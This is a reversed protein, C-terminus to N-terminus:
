REQLILVGNDTRMNTRSLFSNGLLSHQMADNLGIAAKVNYLTLEGVTVKHLTVLRVEKVGNATSFYSAQGKTYDIGLRKATSLNFTILTAGTDVMFDVHHGNVVGTVWHHGHRQSVIRVTKPRAQQYSGGVQRSLGVRQRQGNIELLADRSTAKILTIGQQTKGEKLMVRQGDVMLLAAGKFLGKVTINEAALGAMSFAMAWCLIIVRYFMM